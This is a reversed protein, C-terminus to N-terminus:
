GKGQTVTAAPQKIGGKQVPFKPASPAPIKKPQFPGVNPRRYFTPPVYYFPSTPSVYYFPSVPPVYWYNSGPYVDAGVPNNNNLQLQLQPAAAQPPMANADKVLDRVFKMEALNLAAKAEASLTKGLVVDAAERSTKKHDDLEQELGRQLKTMANEDLYYRVMLDFVQHYAGRDTDKSPEGFELNNRNMYSLFEEITGGSFQERQPLRAFNKGQVVYYVSGILKRIHTTGEYIRRFEMAAIQPTYAPMDDRWHKRYEVYDANLAAVADRLARDAAASIGDTRSMEDLAAARAKEVASRHAAWRDERLVPPWDIDILEGNGVRSDRTGLGKSQITLHSFIEETVPLSVSSAHLPLASAPDVRRTELNQRAAPGVEMLLKNLGRGSEISGSSKDAFELLKYIERQHGREWSLIMETMIRPRDVVGRQGLEFQATTWKTVEALRGELERTREDEQRKIELAAQRREERAKAGLEDIRASIDAEEGRAPTTFYGTSVVLAVFLTTARM